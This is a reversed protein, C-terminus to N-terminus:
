QEVERIHIRSSPRVGVHHRPQREANTKLPLPSSIRANVSNGVSWVNLVSIRANSVPLAQCFLRCGCANDLWRGTAFGEVFPACPIEQELEPNRHGRPRKESAERLSQREFLLGDGAWV